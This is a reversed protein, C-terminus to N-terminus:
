AEARERGRVLTLALNPGLLDNVMVALLVATVAVAAVPSPAAHYYGMVMAVVVGGQAVLGQGLRDPAPPDLRTLRGGLFGGLLKGGVRLVLYLAAIPFAWTSGPTWIAGALVLFVIYAPKELWAVLHLVRTKSGPLNTAVLGMTMCVFLPSLRLETALGAAFLVLGAVFVRLEEEACRIRTLHHLLVGFGVGLGVSVLVWQLGTAVEVGFPSWPRTVAYAVGLALVAVVSDLSAVYRLLRLLRSRRLAPQQGLLALASPATCAATSALVLAALTVSPRDTAFLRKLLVLCPWFVVAMTAAAQIVTIELFALPYRGLARVEVQIGIMLGVLGLGLTFLPTLSLVTAEDLVGLMEGGLAFGVLIYETGTLFVLRAGLPLRTFTRRYGVFAIVLLLVLGGIIKLL